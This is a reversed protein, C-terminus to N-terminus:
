LSSIFNIYFRVLCLQRHRISHDFPLAVGTDKVLLWLQPNILRYFYPPVLSLPTLPYNLNISAGAFIEFWFRNKISKSIWKILKLNSHIWRMFNLSVQDDTYGRFVNVKLIAVHQQKKEKKKTIKVIIKVSKPSLLSCISLQISYHNYLYCCKSYIKNM